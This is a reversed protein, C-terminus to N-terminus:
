TGDHEGADISVNGSATPVRAGAVLLWLCTGIEGLAAPLPVYRALQSEAYSPVLLDGFVQVLYGFCGAVLLAGLIKPLWGSRLVLLGFPLLWLGWFLQAVQLGSRYATLAGIAASEIQAKALTRSAVPDTLLWLAEIRHMLAALGVAVGITALAVMLLALTRDVPAFLRYLALPLLLYAIQMILFAAIGMRFISDSAVINALTARPNGVVTLQGPVYALCFLGTVVVVLYLAGALRGAARPAPCPATDSRGRM